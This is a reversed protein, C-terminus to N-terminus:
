HVKRGEVIGIEDKTLGYLGYVKKDIKAELMSTDAQSNAKKASLIQDVLDTISRQQAITAPPIPLTKINELIIRQFSQKDKSAINYLFDYLKSNLLGLIYKLFSIDNKKAALNYISQFTVCGKLDLTANIYTGLQRILIKPKEYNSKGIDQIKIFRSCTIPEYRHVNDGALIPLSSVTKKCSILSSKRGMEEGRWMIMKSALKECKSIKLLVSNEEDSSFSIRYYESQEVVSKKIVVQDFQNARWLEVTQAKIYQFSYDNTTQNRYVYILSAVNASEFVENIHVWKLITRKCVIEYRITAFNSRGILSDPVIFSSVGQQKLLKTSLEIFLAYLDMQNNASVYLSKYLDKSAKDLAKSSIYPPNGIVM